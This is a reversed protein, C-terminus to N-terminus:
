VTRGVVAPSSFDIAGGTPARWLLDLGAANNVDIVNEFRNFGQHAPGRHFAAWPTHVSFPKQAADGTKRGVATIWHTGPTASAPVKLAVSFAGTGSSVTLSMDTTDFFVDIAESATFGSGNVTTPTTPLGGNRSLTLTAAAVARSPGAALILTLGLVSIVYARYNM